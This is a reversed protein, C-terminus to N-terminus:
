QIEHLDTNRPRMHIIDAIHKREIWKTFVFAYRLNSTIITKLLGVHLSGIRMHQLQVVAIRLQLKEDFKYQM